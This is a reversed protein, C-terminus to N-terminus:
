EHYNRGRMAQLANGLFRCCWRGKCRQWIWRAGMWQRLSCPCPKGRSDLRNLFGKTWLKYKEPASSAIFEDALARSKAPKGDYEYEEIAMTIDQYGNERDPYDKILGV